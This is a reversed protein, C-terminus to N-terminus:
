KLVGQRRIWDVIMDRMPPGSRPFVLGSTELQGPANQNEATFDSVALTYEREPDVTKGATVVAPLDRGKFTGVVVVNDFPMANWVHRVLLQGQPLIDRVGGANMFAFDAGTEDRMAREILLRVDAKGFRREAVALPQDVVRSVEDEWRKVEPAVDAAAPLTRSDVGVKKWSWSAVSKREVDVQLELRGIEEGYAKARVVMRGDRVRPEKLGQHEHGTVIVPVTPGLGLLEDEENDTIHALVVTLDAWSRAESAYRRVAELLSVTHWPGRADPKTLTDLTDTMAGVVAVRVGNTLLVVYPWRAFLRGEGDVINAVAIPYNAVQMFKQTQQWGYDFDHNGLTGADFGFRNAIEFVPLGKFITSAPSGQVVDGANLLLCGICNERERRIATALYAFGGNGNELPSLRAHIDNAHLITVTRVHDQAHALGAVVLALLIRSLVSL